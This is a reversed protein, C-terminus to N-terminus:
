HLLPPVFYHHPSFSYVCSFYQTRVWRVRWPVHASFVANFQVFTYRFLSLSILVFASLEFSYVCYRYEWMLFTGSVVCNGELPRNMDWLEGAATNSGGGTAGGVSLSEDVEMGDDAVVEGEFPAKVRSSYAVKAVLANQALGKSIANAVDMPTTKWAVCDPIVKGDPLSVSIPEQSAGKM